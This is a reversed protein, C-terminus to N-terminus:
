PTKMGTRRKEPTARLMKKEIGPTLALVATGQEGKLTVGSETIRVIKAEGVQDGVGLTRGDIVAQAKGKAPILVSSLLPQAAATVGPQGDVAVQTESLAPPRTPDPLAPEAGPRLSQASAPLVALACGLAVLLTKLRDAM